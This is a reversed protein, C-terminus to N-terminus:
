IDKVLVSLLLSTTETTLKQEWFSSSTHLCFLYELFMQIASKSLRAERDVLLPTHQRHDFIVAMRYLFKLFPSIKLHKKKFLLTMGEVEEKAVLM